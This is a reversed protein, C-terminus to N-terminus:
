DFYFGTHKNIPIRYGFGFSKTKLKIIPCFQMRKFESRSYLKLVLDVYRADFGMDILDSRDYRYSLLCELIADLIPYPPLSDTDFQNDRLEATPKRTIIGKPILNEHIENIYECLEFAETKYLDGIISFAGVSDGYLTSYGVAIESKNSTNIVLSGSQNSRAFILAGRLRAQINEDPLGVFPESFYDTFTERIMSHIPKIPLIKLPVNLNKCLQESLELSQTSSYQSPMYIAEVSMDDKLALKILTLALSSDLGGSLALQFKNFGNQKAYERIAFTTAKLVYDKQIDSLPILEATKNTIVVRPNFLSEWSHTIELGDNDYQIEKLEQIEIAVQDAQFFKAQHTITNGNVMFSGGDFLVEDQEAVMNVYAFPAKLMNSIDQAQALRSENKTIGFPSASINVVLDYNENSHILDAVPNAKYHISQWMDECILLAINLGDWKISKSNEGPTFYKREDFIDYNPLLRKSYIKKLGSGPSLSYMSNQIKQTIGSDSFEYSLGGMLHLSGNDSLQKSYENIKKLFNQYSEYFSKQLCLDQLPYGSLFLEPYIHLAKEKNQLNSELVNFISEFDAIKEHCQHIIIKSMEDEGSHIFQLINRFM